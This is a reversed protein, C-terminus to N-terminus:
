CQIPAFTPAPLSTARTSPLLRFRVEGAIAPLHPPSYYYFWGRTPPEPGGEHHTPPYHPLRGLHMSAGDNTRADALRYRWESGKPTPRQRRTLCGRDWLRTTFRSPTVVDYAALHRPDLTRISNTFQPIRAGALTGATDETTRSASDSISYPRGSEDIPRRTPSLRSAVLSLSTHLLPARSTCTARTIHAACM